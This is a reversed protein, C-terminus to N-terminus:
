RKKEDPMTGKLRKGGGDSVGWGRCFGLGGGEGERKVQCL